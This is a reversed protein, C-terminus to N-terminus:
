ALRTKMLMAKAPIELVTDIGNGEERNKSNENGLSIWLVPSYKLDSTTPSIFKMWYFLAESLNMGATLKNTM